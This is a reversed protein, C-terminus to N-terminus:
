MGFVTLCAYYMLKAAEKQVEEDSTWWSGIQNRLALIFASICAAVGLLVASIVATILKAAKIDGSGM